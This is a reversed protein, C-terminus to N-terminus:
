QSTKPIRVVSKDKEQVEELFVCLEGVSMASMRVLEEALEDPACEQAPDLAPAETAAGRGIKGKGTKPRAKSTKAWLENATKGM